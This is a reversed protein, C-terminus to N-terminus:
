KSGIQQAVGYVARPDASSITMRWISQVQGGGQVLGHDSFLDPFDGSNAVIIFYRLSNDDSLSTAHPRKRSFSFRTNGKHVQM